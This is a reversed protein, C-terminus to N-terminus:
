HKKKKQILYIIALFFVAGLADVAVDKLSGTRGAIFSQHFEDSLAYLITLGAAFLYLSVKSIRQPLAKFVLLALIGFEAAHAIKRLIFDQELGSKLDPISSLFFIFAAWLLVLFWHWIM